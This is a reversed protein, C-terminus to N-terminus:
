KNLFSDKKNSFLRIAFIVVAAVLSCVGVVLLYDGIIPGIELHYINFLSGLITDIFGVLLLINVDPTKM